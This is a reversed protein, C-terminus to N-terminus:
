NQKHQLFILMIKEKYFNRHFNRKRNNLCFVWGASNYVVSLDGNIRRNPLNISNLNVKKLFESVANALQFYIQMEKKFEKRHTSLIKKFHSCQLQVQAGKININWLVTLM